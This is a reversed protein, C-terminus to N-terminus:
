CHREGFSRLRAGRGSGGPCRLFRLPFPRPLVMGAVIPFKDANFVSRRPDLIRVPVTGVVKRFRATLSSSRLLLVSVPLRLKAAAVPLRGNFVSCLSYTLRLPNETSSAVKQGVETVPARSTFALM